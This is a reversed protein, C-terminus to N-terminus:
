QGIGGGLRRGLEAVLTASPRDFFVGRGAHRGMGRLFLYYVGGFHRDYDYGAHRAGLYRDVAVTYLLYQLHYRNRKMADEVHERRYFGDDPGLHNSKYDAVFYRGGHEFVLDIFGRMFGDLSKLGTREVADIYDRARAGGHRALVEILWDLDLADAALFFGCECLRRAPDIGGLSLDATEDLPAALVSRVMGRTASAWAPDIGARALESLVLAELAADDTAAPDLREFITHWCLGTRAGRPYRHISLQGEADGHGDERAAADHDPAEDSHGAVLSSFSAVAFTRSLRRDFGLAVLRATDGPEPALMGGAAAPDVREVAVADPVASAIERLDALLAEDDLTKFLDGLKATDPEGGQLRPALHMLWALPSTEAGRIAGAHVVCYQRARTLAVYLLRVNEAFEEREALVRHVDIAPSGFDLTPRRDNDPDHFVADGKGARLVGDWAFPCYVVEFQLGKAAHMTVVKVRDADSELRLEAETDSPDAAARADDFWKVVLEMGAQAEHEHQQVLEALHQLNTIAREGGLRSLWRRYVDFDAMLARFVPMFGREIWQLHYRRFRECERDWAADDGTLAALRRATYGAVGSALAARVARERAPELVARLVAALATAEDSLFVSDAGHRAVPVGRAALADYVRRAQRHTRVLVAVDGGGLAREGITVQGARGAALLAVIERALDDVVVDEARGKTISAPSDFDARSLFRFELRSAPAGSRRLLARNADVGAVEPYGLERFVFPNASREFLHNVARVLEPDSRYNVALTHQSHVMQRGDLYAFLDAGRFSYIAQKPDGVFVRAGGGDEYIRRFIGLQVQDTDQFEDILAAPFRGRLYAALREGGAGALAGHVLTLLDDFSHLRRERKRRALEDVLYGRLDTMLAFVRAHVAEDLRGAAELLAGAAEFFAHRPAERGKRTAAELSAPTFKEFREPLGDPPADAAFLGAAELLWREVSDRRYKHGNLAGGDLLLERITDNSDRWARRAKRWASEFAAELLELAGSAGAAPGIVTLWPRSAGAAVRAALGEPGLRREILARIVSRPVANQVHIRWFDDCIERVLDHESTLIAADFHAGCELAVEALLRQCFGHITHIAAQDFGSLARDLRNRAAGADVGDPLADRYLPDEMTGSEFEERLASLRVRIRARLEATAAETYTVALIREVPLASEVVLRAYLASITWTKGTGASAEILLAEDLPLRAIRLAGDRGANM